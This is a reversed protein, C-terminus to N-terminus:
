TLQSIILKSQNYDKQIQEPQKLSSSIEVLKNETFHPTTVPLSAQLLLKVAYFVTKSSIPQSIQAWFSIEKVGVQHPLQV